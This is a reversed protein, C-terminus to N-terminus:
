LKVDPTSLIQRAIERTAEDTQKQPQKPTQPEGDTKIQGDESIPRFGWAALQRQFSNM